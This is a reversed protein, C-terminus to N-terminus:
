LCYIFLSCITVKAAKLIDSFYGANVCSNLTVVLPVKNYTFPKRLINNSLEYHDMSESNSM